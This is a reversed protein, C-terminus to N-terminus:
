FKGRLIKFGQVGKDFSFYGIWEILNKSWREPHTLICIKELKKSEILNILDDTTKINFDNINNLNNDNNMNSNLNVNFDKVKYKNGWNRGTDSFYAIDSGLSLYAEGLIEFKKFTETVEKENTIDCRFVFINKNEKVIEDVNDVSKDVIIVKYNRELLANSIAFGIGDNGGTVLATKQYM